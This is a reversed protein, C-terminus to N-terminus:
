TVCCRSDAPFFGGAKQNLLFMNQGQCLGAKIFNNWRKLQQLLCCNVQHWMQAQRFEKKQLENRPRRVGTYKWLWLCSVSRREKIVIRIQVMVGCIICIVSEKEYILTEKKWQDSYLNIRWHYDTAVRSSTSGDLLHACPYVAGRSASGLVIRILSSLM